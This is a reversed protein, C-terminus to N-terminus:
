RNILSNLMIEDYIMDFRKDSLKGENGDVFKANSSIVM